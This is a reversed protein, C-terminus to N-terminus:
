TRSKVNPATEFKAGGTGFAFFAWFPHPFYPGLFKKKFTSLDNKLRLIRYFSSLSPHSYVPNQWEARIGQM